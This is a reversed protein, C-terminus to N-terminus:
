KVQIQTSRGILRIEANGRELKRSNRHLTLKLLTSILIEALKILLYFVNANIKLTSARFKYSVIISSRHSKNGAAYVSFKENINASISSTKGM